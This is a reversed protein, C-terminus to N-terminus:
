VSRRRCAAREAERRLHRFHLDPDGDRHGEREAARGAVGSGVTSDLVVVGRRERDPIDERGRVEESVDTAVTSPGQGAGTIEGNVLDVARLKTFTSGFDILLAATM